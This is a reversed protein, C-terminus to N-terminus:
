TQFVGKLQMVNDIDIFKESDLLILSIYMMAIQKPWSSELNWIKKHSRIEQKFTMYCSQNKDPKLPHYSEWFEM